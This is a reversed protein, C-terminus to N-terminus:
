VFASLAAVDAQFTALAANVRTKAASLDAAEVDVVGDAYSFATVNEIDEVCRALSYAQQEVAGVDDINLIAM